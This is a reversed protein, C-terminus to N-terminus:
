TGVASLKRAGPLRARRRDGSRLTWGYGRLRRHPVYRRWLHWTLALFPGHCTGKHTFARSVMAHGVTLQETSPCNTPWHSSPRKRGYRPGVCADGARCLANGMAGSCQMARNSQRTSWHGRALAGCEGGCVKSEQGCLTPQRWAAAMRAALGAVIAQIVTIVMM